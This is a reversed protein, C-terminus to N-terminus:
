FNGDKYSNVVSSTRHFISTNQITHWLTQISGLLSIDQIVVNEPLKSGLTALIM